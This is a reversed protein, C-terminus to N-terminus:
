EGDDRAFNNRAWRFVSKENGSRLTNFSSQRSAAASTACDEIDIWWLNQKIRDLPNRQAHTYFPQACDSGLVLWKVLRITFIQKFDCIVLKKPGIPHRVYALPEKVTGNRQRHFGDGGLITSSSSGSLCNSHRDNIRNPGM